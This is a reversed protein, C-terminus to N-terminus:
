NEKDFGRSFRTCGCEKTCQALNKNSLYISGACSFFLLGLGLLVGSTIGTVTPPSLQCCNANNCHPIVAFCFASCGTIAAACTTVYGAGEPMCCLSCKPWEDNRSNSIFIDHVHTCKKCCIGFKYPYSEEKESLANEQMTVVPPQTTSQFSLPIETSFDHSNNTIDVTIFEM